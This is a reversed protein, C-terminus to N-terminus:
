VIDTVTFGTAVRGDIERFLWHLPERTKGATCGDCILFATFTHWDAITRVLADFRRASFAGRSRAQRFLAYPEDHFQAMALLDADDVFEALFARALSSHSRPHVIPVDEAEPKFPDHTHILLLLKLRQAETLKPSLAELNRELDAIHAAITGEPHGPRPEGWLVNRLYRPDRRIADLAPSLDPM